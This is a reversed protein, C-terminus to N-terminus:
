LFLLASGAVAIVAGLVAQGSVREKFILVAPPIILVPVLAMITAAVGAETYKVAVLSLSVGLFPGFIAGAGTQVMARRNGLAAGVRPWWRICTFLVAFGLIGAIVRIQTAAFADYDGMGLKSLVLGTAQGLAGGLGLLLGTVPLSSTRQHEGIGNSRQLIVIAIGAMTLAMGLLDPPSLSEGLLAWGLVAAFPPVLAMLLMSLRADIIVFARFLCLDGVTFGVLGSLGLWIWAHASADSPLALGRSFWCFLSLLVMGMVLRILNVVLSGIRRGASEFALSCITWCIATGLAALEGANALPMM